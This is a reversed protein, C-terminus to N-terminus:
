AADKPERHIVTGPVWAGTEQFSRPKEVNWDKGASRKHVIVSPLKPVFIEKKAMAQM